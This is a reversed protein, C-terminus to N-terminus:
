YQIRLRSCLGFRPPSDSRPRFIFILPPAPRLPFFKKRPPALRPTFFGGRKPRQDLAQNKNSFNRIKFRYYNNLPLFLRNIGTSEQYGKISLSSLRHNTIVSLPSNPESVIAKPSQHQYLFYTKMRILHQLLQSISRMQHHYVLEEIQGTLIGWFLNIKESNRYRQCADHLNYGM